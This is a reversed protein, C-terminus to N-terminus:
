SRSAPMGKNQRLGRIRVRQVGCQLSRLSSHRAVTGGCQLASDESDRDASRVWVPCGENVRVQRSEAHVRVAGVLLPFSLASHCDTESLLLKLNTQLQNSTPTTLDGCCSYGRSRYRYLILM